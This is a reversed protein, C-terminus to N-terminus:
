KAIIRQSGKEKKEQRKETKVDVAHPLLKAHDTEIIVIGLQKLLDRNFAKLFAKKEQSAIINKDFSVVVGHSSFSIFSPGHYKIVDDLKEVIKRWLDLFDAKKAHELYDRFTGIKNLDSRNKIGLESRRKREKDMLEQFYKPSMITAYFAEEKMAGLWLNMIGDMLAYALMQYEDPLFKELIDVTYPQKGYKDRYLEKRRALKFTDRYTKMYPFYFDVAKEAKERLERNRKFLDALHYQLFNDRKFYKSSWLNDAQGEEVEEDFIEQLEKSVKYYERQILGLRLLMLKYTGLNYFSYYDCGYNLWCAYSGEHNRDHYKCHKAHKVIGLYPSSFDMGVNKFNFIEGSLSVVDKSFEDYFEDESIEEFNGFEQGRRKFYKNYRGDDRSEEYGMVVPFFRYVNPTIGLEDAGVEGEYFETQTMARRDQFFTPFFTFSLLPFEFLTCDDAFAFAGNRTYVHPIMPGRKIADEMFEKVDKYKRNSSMIRRFADHFTKNYFYNEGFWQRRTGFYKDPIKEIDDYKRSFDNLRKLNLMPLFICDEGVQRSFLYRKPERKKQM